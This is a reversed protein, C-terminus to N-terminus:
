YLILETTDSPSIHLNPGSGNTIDVLELENSEVFDTLHMSFNNRKPSSRNSSDYIRSPFSQFDGAIIIEGEDEFSNIIGKIIDLQSSYEDLSTQNNRSSSLYIGIIFINTGNQELRISFIHDDKYITHINQFSNKRILFANGGFPRGQERKHADHFFLSHTTKAQDNLLFYELKSLWHECLFIIDYSELLSSVYTANSKFGQCNFTCLTITKSINNNNVSGRGM